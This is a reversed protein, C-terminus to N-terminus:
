YAVGSPASQLQAVFWVKGVDQGKVTGAKDKIFTYLPRHDWELQVGSPGKITTIGTVGKGIVPKKQGKALVVAPWFTLCQGTCAWHGPKNATDYYLALGKGDELIPGYKAVTVSKVSTMAMAMTVAPRPAATAPAALTALTLAAGAAGGALRGLKPRRARGRAAVPKDLPGVTQFPELNVM